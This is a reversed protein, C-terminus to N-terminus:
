TDARTIDDLQWIKDFYQETPSYFRVMGFWGRGPVTQIWNGEAAPQNPGFTIDISGDDNVVPNTYSSVSPLPQSTQVQSRSVADYVLVSWFNLAPIGPPLHLRYESDGQLFRADADRYTWLYQSGQGVHKDMMAPSNGIAMYYVNNRADIQPVGNITFTYDLDGVGQWQKGPYFYNASPAFTNARAIASGARAADGLLERMRTDPAFVTQKGIGVAQMQSRALPAFTEAPEEDVLMALLDFFRDDDPFVTDIPQRSGNLFEMKPRPDANLPYIQLGHILHVAHETSGDVQFGRLAVLASYTPSRVVFFDEPVEGDYDPPLVLFKGGKGHDPGLPGIDVVYRQIGDQILGLMEAPAEVVTLGDTKLDLQAIAYVTETNATLLQTASDMLQEWIVVQQATRAGFARLGERQAIESVAVLQTLYVEIARNFILQELLRQGSDGVPYGGDFDFDGFRTSIRGTTIWGHQEDTM